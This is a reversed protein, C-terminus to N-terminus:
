NVTITLTLAASQLEFKADKYKPPGMRPPPNNSVGSPEKPNGYWHREMKGSGDVDHHVLVAYEGPPIDAVTWTGGLNEIEVIEARLPQKLFNEESDFLVFRLSGDNSELGTVQVTLTGTQPADQAPAVAALLVLAAALPLRRLLLLGARRKM